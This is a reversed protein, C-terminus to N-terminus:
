EQEWYRIMNRKEEQQGWEWVPGERGRWNRIAKKERGLSISAVESPSKPKNVKKLGPSETSKQSIDV